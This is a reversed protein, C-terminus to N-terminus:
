GSWLAIDERADQPVTTKVATDVVQIRNGPKLVRLIERYAAEKDPDAV